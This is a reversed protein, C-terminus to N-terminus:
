RTLAYDNIAAKVLLPSVRLVEAIKEAKIEVSTYPAMKEWFEVEQLLQMDYKAFLEKPM